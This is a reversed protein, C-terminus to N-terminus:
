GGFELALGAGMMQMADHESDAPEAHRSGADGRGDHGQRLHLERAATAPGHLANTGIARWGKSGTGGPRRALGGPRPKVVPVPFPGVFPFPRLETM